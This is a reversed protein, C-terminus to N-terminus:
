LRKDLMQALRVGAQRLRRELIPAIRSVYSANIVPTSGIAECRRESEGSRKEVERWQCYHAGALTVIDFSEQAWTLPAVDMQWSAQEERALATQTKIYRRLSRSGRHAKIIGADWASHLHRGYGLTDNLKISSGGRDDAFSAHMPQHIDAVWHALLILAEGRRSPSMDKDSLLAAHKEIAHLVCDQECNVVESTLKTVNRPLNVYHWRDYKAYESWRTFGERANHRATDAFHCADTFRKFTKGNPKSFAATFRDVNERTESHILDYAIECVIRHGVIGWALGDASPLSLVTICFLYLQWASVKAKVLFFARIM